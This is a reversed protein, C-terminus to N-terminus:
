ILYFPSTQERCQKGSGSGPHRQSRGQSYQSVGGFEVGKVSSNVGALVNLSFNVPQESDPDTDAHFPPVFTVQARMYSQRREVSQLQSQRM